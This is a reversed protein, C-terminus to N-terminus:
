KEAPSSRSSNKASKGVTVLSCALANRSCAFSARRAAAPAYGMRIRSSSHRGPRFNRGPNGVWSTRATASIPQRPMLFPREQYSCRRLEVCEHGYITAETVLLVCRNHFQQDYYQSRLAVSQFAQKRQERRGILHETGRATSLDYFHPGSGRKCVSM